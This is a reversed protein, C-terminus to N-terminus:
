KPAEWKRDGFMEDAPTQNIHNFYNSMTKLGVATIIEAVQREAYGAEVFTSIDEPGIWGRKRVIKRTFDSLTRLKEDPIEQDNRIADTVEAPVNSINDALFSHASMCYDCANERSISLFIVEQEVKSFGSSRAFAEVGATYTQILSPANAMYSYINPIAGMNKQVNELVEKSGEPASEPSHEELKLKEQTEM